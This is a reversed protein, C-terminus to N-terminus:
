IDQDPGNTAKRDTDSVGDHINIIEHIKTNLQSPKIESIKNTNKNRVIVSHDQTVVVSNGKNDSIRYMRKKVKHKMIYKIKKEEILGDGSVSYSVDGNGIIKVYDENFKDNKVFEGGCSEFYNQISIKKGNVYILSEGVVSDTDSAVVYDYGETKVQKNLFENLCNM